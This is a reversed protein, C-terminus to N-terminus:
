NDLTEVRENIYPQYLLLLLLCKIHKIHSTVCGMDELVM